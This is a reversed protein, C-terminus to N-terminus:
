SLSASFTSSPWTTSSVFLFTWSATVSLVSKGKLRQVLRSITV